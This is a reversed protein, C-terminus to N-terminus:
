FHSVEPVLDEIFGLFEQSITGSPGPLPHDQMYQISDAIVNNTQQLAVRAVERSYGMNVLMKLFEPNVYQQGDSCKGLKEKERFDLM